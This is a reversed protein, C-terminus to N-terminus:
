FEDIKNGVYGTPTGISIVGTKIAEFRGGVRVYFVYLGYDFAGGPDRGTAAYSRVFGNFVTFLDDNPDYDAPGIRSVVNGAIDGPKLYKSDGDHYFYYAGADESVVLTCGNVGGTLVITGDSVPKPVRVWTFSRQLWPFFYDTGQHQVANLSYLGSNVQTATISCRDGQQVGAFHGPTPGTIIATSQAVASPNVRLKNVISM